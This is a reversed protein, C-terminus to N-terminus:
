YHHVQLVSTPCSVSNRQFYLLSFSSPTWIMLWRFAQVVVHLILARASLSGRRMAPLLRSSGTQPVVVLVSVADCSLYAVAWLVSMWQLSCINGYLIRRLYITLNEKSKRLVLPHVITAHLYIAFMEAALTWSGRFMEANSAFPM